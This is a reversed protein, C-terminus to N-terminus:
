VTVEIPYFTGNYFFTLPRYPERGLPTLFGYGIVVVVPAEPTLAPAEFDSELCLPEISRLMRSFAMSREELTTSDGLTM